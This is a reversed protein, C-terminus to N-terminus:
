EYKFHMSVFHRHNLIPYLGLLEVNKATFFASPRPRPRLGLGKEYSLIYLESPKLQSLVCGVMILIGCVTSRTINAPNLNERLECPLCIRSNFFRAFIIRIIAGNFFFLFDRIRFMTILGLIQFERFNLCAFIVLVVTILLEAVGPQNYYWKSYWSLQDTSPWCYSSNKLENTHVVFVVYPVAINYSIHKSSSYTQLTCM